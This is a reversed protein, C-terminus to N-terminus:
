VANGREAYSESFNLFDSLTKIPNQRRTISLYMGVVPLISGFFLSAVVAEDLANSDEAPEGRLRSLFADSRDRICM